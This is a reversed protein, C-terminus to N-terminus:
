REQGKKLFKKQLALSAENAKKRIHRKTYTSAMGSFESWGMLYSRMKKEEADSINNKDMLESFRENWTHRMVHSSLSSPLDLFKERLQTFSKTVSGLSLPAGTRMAVFLFDHSKVDLVKRRVQLIYEEILLSLDEEFPLRRDRTKTNPEYLRPDDVDDPTRRVLLTNANLDIDSIRISLLEGVRVGLVLMMLILLQNRIRIHPNQWPNEVSDPNIVDRLRREVESPIGERGGEINRSGVQPLRAEILERMQIRSVKYQSQKKSQFAGKQMQQLTLWDLYDRIYLIRVLKTKSAVTSIKNDTSKRYKELNFVNRKNQTKSGESPTGIEKRLQDYRIGTANVLSEIEVLSLLEQDAFRQELNIGILSAWAYLHMIARLNAELTASAKGSSRLISITYVTTLFFPSGAEKKM